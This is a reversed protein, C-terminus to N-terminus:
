GGGWDGFTPERYSEEPDCSAGTMVGAQCGLMRAVPFGFYLSIETMYDAELEPAQPVGTM